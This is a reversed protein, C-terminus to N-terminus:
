KFEIARARPAKSLSVIEYTIEASIPFKKDRIRSFVELYGSGTFFSKECVGGIYNEKQDDSPNTIYYVKIGQILDGKETKFDLKQISVVQINKVIIPNRNENNNM